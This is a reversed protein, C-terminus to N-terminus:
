PAGNTPSAAPRVLRTALHLLTDLTKAQAHMVLGHRDHHITLTVPPLGVAWGAGATPGAPLPDVVIGCWTSGDLAEGAAGTQAGGKATGARQAAAAVAQADTSLLVTQGVRRAVWDARKAVLASAAADAIAPERVTLAVLWAPGTDGTAPASLDVAVLVQGTFARELQTWDIGTLALLGLRASALGLRAQLQQPPIWTMLGDFVDHINVSVRIAAFGHQPLFASLPETPQPAAFIQALSDLAEGTMVVRGGTADPGVVLSAARIRQTLHTLVDHAAPQTALPALATALGDAHVYATLRPTKPMDAMAARFAPDVALRPGDDVSWTAMAPLDAGVEQAASWDGFQKWTAHKAADTRLPGGAVWLTPAPTRGVVSRADLSVAMGRVPDAGAATWAPSNRPDFGLIQQLKESNLAQRLETRQPEALGDVTRDLSELWAIPAEVAVFGATQKASLVHAVAPLEGRDHLAWWGLCAAVLTAALGIALKKSMM